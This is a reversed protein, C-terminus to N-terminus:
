IIKYCSSWWAMLSLQKYYIRTFKWTRDTWCEYQHRRALKKTHIWSFHGLYQWYIPSDVVIFTVILANSSNQMLGHSKRHKYKEYRLVETLISAYMCVDSKYIAWDTLADSRFSSYWIYLGKSRLTSLSPHHNSCETDYNRTQKDASPALFTEQDQSDGSRPHPLRVTNNVPLNTYIAWWKM